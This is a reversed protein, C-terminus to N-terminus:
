LSSSRAHRRRAAISINQRHEESFKRGLNAPPFNENLWCAHARRRAIEAPSLIQKKGVLGNSIKQKTEKTHKHGLLHQNGVM